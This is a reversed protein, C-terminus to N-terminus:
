RVRWWERRFAGICAGIHEGTAADRMQVHGLAYVRTVEALRADDTYYAGVEVRQTYALAIDLPLTPM